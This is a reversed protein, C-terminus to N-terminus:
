MPVLLLLDAGEQRAHAAIAPAMEYHLARFMGEAQLERLREVPFVVNVDAQGPRRIPAPHSPTLTAADVAADILRVTLDNPPQFPPESQCHVGASALMMLTCDALPKELPTWPVGESEVWPLPPLSNTVQDVLQVYRVPM